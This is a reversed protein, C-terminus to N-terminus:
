GKVEGAESKLESALWQDGNAPEAEEVQYAWNAVVIEWAARKRGAEFLEKAKEVSMVLVPTIEAPVECGLRYIEVAGMDDFMVEGGDGDAVLYQKKIM